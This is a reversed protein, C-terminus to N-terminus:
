EPHRDGYLKNVQTITPSLHPCRVKKWLLVYAGQYMPLIEYNKVDRHHKGPALCITTNWWYGSVTSISKTDQGPGRANGLHPEAPPTATLDALERTEDLLGPKLVPGYASGWSEREPKGVRTGNGMQTEAKGALTAKSIENIRKEMKPM